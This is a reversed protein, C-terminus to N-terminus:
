VPEGLLKMLEDLKATLQEPTSAEAVLRLYPETNSPRVNFWWDPYQVTIGDLHDIEGDAYRKGLEAIKGAKDEVEFNIEESKAYRQLPAILESMTKGTERLLNLVEFVALLANDAYYTDRFYYHGALEGGFIGKEKRLTAKMFSHGVRDRIPKGGHERIYEAVARSSRLDYVVAKGPDRDLLEAAILATSLDNGIPEGHEDVFAARDADGDFAVGLDAGHRRVEACLDRLNSYKLPNAEHNPFTGDLEFYLPLLEIGARELLPRYISGMGNGADVVVKLRRGEEPRRLFGLLREGYAEFIEAHELGGPEAAPELEGSRVKEELLPIGHDGSAPRAERRSLKFGNYPAPNHSATVQVGGAAGTHGVAFYSMPTTALGVDLVDLGGARLGEILAESLPGSHSRMDRSVVVTNSQALDDGALVHRVALGIKRATTEDLETPYIGRVDYAKFIGSM